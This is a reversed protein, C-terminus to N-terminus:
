SSDLSVHQRVEPLTLHIQAPKDGSLQREFSVVPAAYSGSQWCSLMYIGSAEGEVGMSRHYAARWVVLGATVNALLIQNEITASSRWRRDRAWKIAMRESMSIILAIVSLAM